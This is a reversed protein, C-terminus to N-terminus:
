EDILDEYVRIVDETRQDWSHRREVYSRAAEALRDIRDPDDFLRNVTTAISTPDDVDVFYGTEGDSLVERTGAVPTVVPVSYTAMSELLTLPLGESYSPRCFVDAAGYLPLIDDVFGHITVSDSVSLSEVLRTLEAELNGSGVIHVHADTHEDVIDPVARLLDDPGNNRVLRGVYLLTKDFASREVDFRDLDVSNPITTPATAGLSRAVTAVADSVCVVSDSARVLRRAFAAQFLRAATGGLGDIHELDGLHLTTVLPYRELYKYLLGVYATYFFRNHVHVVDPEFRRVARRFDRLAPISVASQLGVYETLDIKNSTFVAIDPHESLEVHENSGRLTFVGVEHGGDTLRRALQDVVQEVGGDSPPLYDACLLVRISDTTTREPPTQKGIKDTRIDTRNLASVTRAVTSVAPGAFVM